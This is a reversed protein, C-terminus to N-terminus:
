DTKLAKQCMKDSILDLQLSECHILYVECKCEDESVVPFSRVSTKYVTVTLTHSQRTELCFNVLGTLSKNDFQFMQTNVSLM